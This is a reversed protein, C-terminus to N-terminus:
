NKRSIDYIVSKNQEDMVGKFKKMFVKYKHEDRSVIEM